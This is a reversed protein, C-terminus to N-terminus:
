AKRPLARDEQVPNREYMKTPGAKLSALFELKDSRSTTKRFMAALPYNLMLRARAEPTFRHTQKM